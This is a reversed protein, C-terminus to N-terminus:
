RNKALILRKALSVAGAANDSYGDAAIQDAFARTVPAGGVIVKVRDRVGASEIAEIVGKMHIMTTTLLASMGILTVGKERVAAIFRDSGVDVGLDLVEFGNGELMSCVLNKGIDHLDGSVTGLAVRGVPERGVKVMQPKLAETASKMARTAILLDPIYFECNEFKEGVEEMAPIMYEDLIGGAEIGRSVAEEALRRATEADGRVIAEKIKSIEEM